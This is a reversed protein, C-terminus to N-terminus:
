CRQLKGVKVKYNPSLKGSSSSIREFAGTAAALPGLETMGYTVVISGYLLHDQLGKRLSEDAFGGVFLWMRVSSLDALKLVPSQLLMAVQTPPTILANVRYQEILHVILLPRFPKKTIVRKVNNGLSQM